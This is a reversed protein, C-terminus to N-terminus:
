QPLFIPDLNDRILGNLLNFGSGRILSCHKPTLATSCLQHSLRQFAPRNANSASISWAVLHFPHRTPLCGVIHSHDIFIHSCILSKKLLPIVSLSHWAPTIFVCCEVNDRFIKMLAKPILPFPPFVYICNPWNFSFANIFSAEPDSFLSAYCPMKANLNSAFLDLSLEFPLLNRLCDFSPQLLGFEYTQAFRSLYDAALNEIGSIHTAVCGINNSCLLFWIDLALDCLSLSHTGGMKNLYFVSTSNDCHFCVNKGRLLPLFEIITLHIAKLELFNIHFQSFSPDWIGSTFNGDSLSAGWGAKSSDTYVHLDFASNSFSVPTLSEPHCNKWWSLDAIALESLPWVTDWDTCTKTGEIFCFQFKRFHLPAFKYANAASVLLGLLSALSRLSQPGSLCSRAFNKIKTVKEEPLSITMNSTDWVYGLHLMVHSPVLSSKPFNIIFGLSTLQSIVFKLDSSVRKFSNGCILIDDLYASIKIDKNRLFAIVPNLIKTFIRPSSTLGFPLVNFHYRQNDLEFTTLYKSEPHLPVLHFANKLDLSVLFDNPSILTKLVEKDEMKFPVKHVHLNLISLDIILRHGGTSKPVTFIRSVVDFASPLCKSVAGSNILKELEFKVIPLKLKSPKSLVPPIFLNSHSLQIKYGSNIINLIFSNNTVFSWNFAYRGLNGASTTLSDSHSPPPPSVRPTVPNTSAM